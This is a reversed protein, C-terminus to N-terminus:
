WGDGIAVTVTRTALTDEAMTCMCFMAILPLSRPPWRWASASTSMQSTPPVGAEPTLTVTTQLPAPGALVSVTAVPAFPTAEENEFLPPAPVYTAVTVATDHLLQVYSELELTSVLSETVMGQRTILM